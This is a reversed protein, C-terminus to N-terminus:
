RLRDLGLLSGLWHTIKRLVLQILLLPWLVILILQWM